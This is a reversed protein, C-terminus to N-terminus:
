KRAACTGLALVGVTLQGASLLLSGAAVWLGVLTLRHSPSDPARRNGTPHHQNRARRSRRGM